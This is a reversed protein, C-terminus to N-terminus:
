SKCIGGWEIEEFTYWTDCTWKDLLLWYEIKNKSVVSMLLMYNIKWHEITEVYEQMHDTLVKPKKWIKKWANALYIKKWKYNYVKPIIASEGDEKPKSIEIEMPNLRVTTTSLSHYQEDGIPFIIIFKNWTHWIPVLSGQMFIKKLKSIDKQSFPWIWFGSVLKWSVELPLQQPYLMHNSAVGAYIGKNSYFLMDQVWPYEELTTPQTTFLVMKYTKGYDLIQELAEDQIQNNKIYKHATNWYHYVAVKTDIPFETDSFNKIQKFIDIFQESSKTTLNNVIYNQMTDVINSWKKINFFNLLIITFGLFSVLWIIYLLQTAKISATTFM